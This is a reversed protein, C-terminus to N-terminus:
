VGVQEMKFEKRNFFLYTNWSRLKLYLGSSLTPLTYSLLGWLLPGRPGVFSPIHSGPKYDKPLLTSHVQPWTQTYSCILLSSDVWGGWGHQSYVTKSSRTIFFFVWLVLGIGFLWEWLLALTTTTIFWLLSSLQNPPPPSCWLFFTYFIDVGNVLLFRGSSLHVNIACKMKVAKIAYKM